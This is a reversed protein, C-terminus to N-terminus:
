TDLIASLERDSVVSNDGENERRALTWAFAEPVPINWVADRTAFGHVILSAALKLPWPTRPDSPADSEDQWREPTTQGARIYDLLADTEATWRKVTRKGSVQKSLAAISAKAAPGTMPIPWPSSCIHVAEITKAPPGRVDYLYPNQCCALAFCHGLCYPRLQRGLVVPPEPPLIADAFFKQV